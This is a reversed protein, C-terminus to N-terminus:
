ESGGRGMSSSCDVYLMTTVCERPLEDILGVQLDKAPIAPLLDVQGGGDEAIANVSAHGTKGFALWGLFRVLDDFTKIECHGVWGPFGEVLQEEDAIELLLSPKLTPVPHAVPPLDPVLQVEVTNLVALLLELRVVVVAVEGLIVEQRHEQIAPLLKCSVVGEELFSAFLERMQLGVGDIWCRNGGQRSGLLVLLVLVDVAKVGTVLLDM